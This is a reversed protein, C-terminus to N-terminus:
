GRPPLHYMGDPGLTYGAARFLAHSAENARLVEAVLEAAPLLTEGLALAASAIGLRQSNPAILISVEWTNGTATRDLRFVGAPQGGHEIIMLICDPSAIRQTFWQRHVDLTPPQSNRSHLRTEPLQQWAFVTMLDALDASRLRVLLGDKATKSATMEHMECAM